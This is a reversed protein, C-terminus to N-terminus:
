SLLEWFIMNRMEFTWLLFTHECKKVAITNAKIYLLCSSKDQAPILPQLCAELNFFLVSFRFRSCEKTGKNNILMTTLNPVLRIFRETTLSKKTSSIPYNQNRKLRHNLIQRPEVRETMKEAGLTLGSTVIVFLWVKINKPLTNIM